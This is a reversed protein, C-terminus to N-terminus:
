HGARITSDFYIRERLDQLMGVSVPAKLLDTQGDDYGAKPESQRIRTPCLRLVM